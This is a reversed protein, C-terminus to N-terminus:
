LAAPAQEVEPRPLPQLMSLRIAILLAVTLLSGTFTVVGRWGAAAWFLGGSSGVFSSGVYYFFLYLAAAQAKSHRARLGVWSSAVSHAGFFGATLTAIGAIIWALPTLLTLLIGVLMLLATAWFVKRRGLRSALDGV